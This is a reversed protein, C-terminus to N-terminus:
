EPRVAARSARGSNLKQIEKLTQEQIDSARKLEEYVKQEDATFQGGHNTAVRDAFGEPSSFVDGVYEGAHSAAVGLASGLRQPVGEEGYQRLRQRQREKAGSKLAEFAGSRRNELVSLNAQSQEALAADSEPDIFSLRRTIAGTDTNANEIDATAKAIEPMNKQLLQFGTVGEITGLKKQLGPIDLGLAGIKNVREGISLGEFGKLKATGTLFSRIMTAAQNEGVSSSLVALSALSEEDSLNLGSSVAALQPSAGLLAEVSAPSFASAAFAKSIIQGSGGAEDKGFGSQYQRVAKALMGPDVIGKQSLAAFTNFSKEELQGASALSFVASAAQDLTEVSGTAFLAEAKSKLGQFETDNNALQRLSGMGRRADASEQKAKEVAANIDDFGKKMLTLPGLAAAMQTVYAGLNGAATPGFAKNGAEGADDLAQGYKAALKEADKLDLGGGAVAQRLREMQNTFKKAPDVQGALSAAARELAKTPKVAAEAGKETAALAAKLQEVAKVAGTASGELSFKASM